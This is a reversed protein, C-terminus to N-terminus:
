DIYYLDFFEPYGDLTKAKLINRYNGQSVPYLQYTFGEEQIFDAKNKMVADYYEMAKAKDKFRRVVIIPVRSEIDGLYINSTRLKELKFYKRHFDSVATKTGTLSIDSKSFTIIVYHPKDFDQLFQSEESGGVETVKGGPGSTSAAGLLRLIEKARKEEPSDPHKAIVSKLEAIYTDRGKTNGLCMAKLLAFRPKHTNDGGFIGPVADIKQIALQYKQSQFATYVEDYYKNLQREKDLTNKVYNPDTLSRAIPTKPFGKVILDFYKKAQVTNNLDTHALYLFYYAELKFETKPYRILLTDLALVSKENEELKERYLRGLAFYAGEIQENAQAAKEPTDPLNGLLKLLDEDTIIGDLVEEEIEEEGSFANAGSRQSRRWNDELNRVGWKREFDRAGRKVSRDDYAFFTSVAAGATPGGGATGGTLVSTAQNQKALLAQRKAEDQEKKIKFALAKKEEDSLAAVALLSDQTQIITLNEAIESLSSAWNDVESYREDTKPLTTLTSDFYAKANIYDEKNLYLNALTIYSEARQAVDGSSNNLALRLHKIANNEDNQQLYIKALAFYIKDKYEINKEDKLMRELDKVAEEATSKGNLWANQALSLRAAFEMEYAPRLKIVKEFGDYAASQNGINQLIQAQIYTYRAKKYKDNELAVAKALPEVAQAYRKRKIHYYSEVVALERRVDDFTSSSRELQQMLREAEPYNEREIYTRALWLVGEQYAPRHKMFYNEEDGTEIEAKYSGISITGPTDEISATANEMNEEESSKNESKATAPKNSSSKKKSSSSPKKKKKKKSGPRPPKRRKKKKKKKSGPAAKKKKSSPKKKNTSSKKKPGSKKKKGKSKISGSPTFESLMFELTEEASEFDQKMYQAQGILLYCDDSWHSPRHLSVVVSVKKIAEDLSESVAKPNDAERSPYLPLIKNYNDTHQSELTLQSETMLVTANYYGNYRATTNQYVKGLPSLDNRSKQTRCGALVLVLLLLSIRIYLNLGQM